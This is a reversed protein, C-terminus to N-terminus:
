AVKQIHQKTVNINAANIHQSMMASLPPEALLVDDAEDGGEAGPSKDGAAEGGADGGLDLDGGGGGGLDGLDGGGEGGLDGLGGGGGGEEPPQAAAELSASFKKDFFMESQMRVFEEDSLGLLNEAVWRRSFYGETAAGAVSFKKDWHELEQLEAIKSPNNLDLKFSELLDDNRYGLTFLHIIGLRRLNLLLLENYDKFQEQM